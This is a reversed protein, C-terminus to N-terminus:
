EPLDSIATQINAFAKMNLLNNHEKGLNYAMDPSIGSLVLEVGLLQLWDKLHSLHNSIQGDFSALGSLDVILFDVDDLAKDKSLVSILVDFRTDTLVGILPIVSVANKVPVLPTSLLEVEKLAETLKRQYQVENTIEKQVGVFYYKQEDEIYVPDITLQNIFEEGNKRYNVLNVSVSQYEEISKRIRLVHDSETNEGQLFRCNRGLVEWPEYGTTYKFGQNVYIIPNDDQEPDTIVIGTKSSDLAKNLLEINDFRRNGWDIM